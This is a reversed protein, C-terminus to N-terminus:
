FGSAQSILRRKVEPLADLGRMGANRLWMLPPSRSDFLRHLGDTALRMALLPEARTRRYRRLVHMDGALRYPEREVVADVLAHVDGLGLNLGQGALPHVRHAADGALAVGPAIMDSQELFLPFGHLPSNLSLEGLRGGTAIRVEAALVRAQKEPALDLLTRARAHPTSWVMSVQSGRSTDPLPLLALVGDDGFWQFACGQHALEADLHVVLGTSGYPRSQSAIGAIKRVASRAGDAGIVLDAPLALGGETHLVRDRLGQARDSVWKVGVLKLAQRLVREIEIDEVIWALEARAGQWADLEIRGDGDGHIEMTRVPAIRQAPLSDWVGIDALFRQSAPSIAYVRPAFIDNQPAAPQAAPAVLTVSQGRRALALAAAMGVIGAGCIVIPSYKM